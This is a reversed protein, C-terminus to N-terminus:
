RRLGRAISEPQTARTLHLADLEAAIRALVSSQAALIGTTLLALRRVAATPLPQPAALARIRQFVEQFVPCPAAMPYGGESHDQVYWGQRLLRELVAGTPRTGIM